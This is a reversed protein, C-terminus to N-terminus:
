SSGISKAQHSHADGTAWALALTCVQHGAERLTAAAEALTAGTTRVDDVLLVRCPEVRRAAFAGRVNALRAGRALGAQDLTERQRRLWSPRLPVGLRRAVPAALLAAPNFGRARLKAPHLPMPVLVDIASRYPEAVTALMSALPRAYEGCGGYKFRRIADACPGEFLWGAASPRPPQLWAPARELLPACADCFVNTAPELRDSTLQGPPALPEGELPQDLGCGPCSRPAVLDLLGRVLLLARSM